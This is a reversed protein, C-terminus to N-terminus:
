ERKGGCGRGEYENGDNMRSGRLHDCSVSGSAVDGSAGCALVPPLKALLIDVGGLRGGVADRARQEELCRLRLTDKLRTVCMFADYRARSHTTDYMHILWTARLISDHSAHLYTVCCM